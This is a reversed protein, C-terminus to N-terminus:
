ARLQTGRDLMRHNLVALAMTVLVLVVISVAISTERYGLFDYPVLAIM